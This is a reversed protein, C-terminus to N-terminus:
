RHGGARRRYRRTPGRGGALVTIVTGGDSVVVYHHTLRALAKAPWGEARLEAAGVRSLWMSVARGGVPVVRDAMDILRAVDSLRLGRERSRRAAHRTLCFNLDMVTM